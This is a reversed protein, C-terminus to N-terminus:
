GELGVAIGGFRRLDAVYFAAEGQAEEWSRVRGTEDRSPSADYFRRALSDAVDVLTMPQREAM